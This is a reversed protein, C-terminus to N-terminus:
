CGEEAGTIESGAGGDGFGSNMVTVLEGGSVRGGVVSMRGFYFGERLRTLRWTQLDALYQLHPRTTQTHKHVALVLEPIGLAAIKQLATVVQLNDVSTELRVVM